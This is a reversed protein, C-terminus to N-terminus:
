WYRVDGVDLHVFDSRPYYGVGGREMGRAARYVNRLSVSPLRIDIAKGQVHLSNWAVGHGEFFLRANTAPSRYASIVHFPAQIGLRAKLDHLLDMLDPAMHTVEDNRHDRLAWDIGRLGSDLYRGNAWYVAKAKEGTQVNVLDLSKESSRRGPIPRAAPLTAPRVGPRLAARDSRTGALAAAPALALALATWGAAALFGRREPRPHDRDPIPSDPTDQQM